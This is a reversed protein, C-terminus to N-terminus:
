RTPPALTSEDIRLVTPSAILAEVTEASAELVVQPTGTLRRVVRHRTSAVEALVSEKIAETTTAPAGGPARLTVIVLVNGHRRAKTLLDPEASTSSTVWGTTVLLLAGVGTLWCLSERLAGV